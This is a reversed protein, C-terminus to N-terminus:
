IYKLDIKVMNENYQYRKNIWCHYHIIIDKELIIESSHTHPTLIFYENKIYDTNLITKTYKDEGVYKALELINNDIMDNDNKNTLINSKMTITRNYTALFIEINNNNPIFIFEDADILAIYKCYHKFANVGIHLANRQITNWHAHQFPSYPFDILIVKNNYKDTIDKMNRYIINDYPENLLNSKNGDNNFIIIGSFGLQLNYQIWEDLRHGYDKCITTIIASTDKNLNLNCFPFMLILDNYIIDDDDDYNFILTGITNIKNPLEIYFDPRKNCLILKANPINISLKTFIKDYHGYLLSLNNIDDYICATNFLIIM